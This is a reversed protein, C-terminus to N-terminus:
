RRTVEEARKILDRQEQSYWETADDPQKIGYGSPLSLLDRIIQKLEAIELAQRGISRDM